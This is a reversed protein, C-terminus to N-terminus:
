LPETKIYAPLTMLSMIYQLSLYGMTKYFCNLCLCFLATYMVFHTTNSVIVVHEYWQLPLNYLLAYM